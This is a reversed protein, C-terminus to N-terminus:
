APDLLAMSILKLMVAHLLTDADLSAAFKWPICLIPLRDRQTHTIPRGFSRIVKVSALDIMQTRPQDSIRRATGRQGTRGNGVFSSRHYMLVLDVHQQCLPHQLDTALM